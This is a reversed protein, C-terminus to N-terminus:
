VYCGEMMQKLEERQLRSMEQWFADHEKAGREFPNSEQGQGDKYMQQAAGKGGIAKLQDKAKM